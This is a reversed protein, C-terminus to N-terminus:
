VQCFLTSKGKIKMVETEEKLMTIAQKIFLYFMLIISTKLITYM